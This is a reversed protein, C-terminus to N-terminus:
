YLLDPHCAVTQSLSFTRGMSTRVNNWYWIGGLGNGSEVMKVNFGEKRLKYLLYVGGFGGGIVLADLEIDLPEGNAQQDRRM